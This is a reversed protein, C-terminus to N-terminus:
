YKSFLLICNILFTLEIIVFNLCYTINTAMAAGVEKWGFKTVFLWCWFFHM